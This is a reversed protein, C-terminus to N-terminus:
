FNGFRYICDAHFNELEYIDFICNYRLGFPESNEQLSENDFCLYNDYIVLNEELVKQEKM